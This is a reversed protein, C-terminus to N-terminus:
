ALRYKNKLIRVIKNSTKEEEDGYNILYNYKFENYEKHNVTLNDLIKELEHHQITSYWVSKLGLDNKVRKIGSKIYANLIEDDLLLMPKDYLVAYQIANTFHLLVLSSKAIYENTKFWVVERNPFYLDKKGENFQPHACIIVEKNTIKEVKEFFINLETYYKDPDVPTLGWKEFDGIFPVAFDLFVICGKNEDDCIKQDLFADYTSSNVYIIENYKIKYKTIKGLLKQGSIFYLDYKSLIGFYLLFLYILFSFRQYFKGFITIKNEATDMQNLIESDLGSKTQVGIMPVKYRNLLYSLRWMPTQDGFGNIIVIRENKLYTKFSSMSRFIVPPHPLKDKSFPAVDESEKLCMEPFLNRLDFFVVHEFNLLVQQFLEDSDVRHYSFYM